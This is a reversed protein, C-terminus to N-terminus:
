RKGGVTITKTLVGLHDDYGFVNVTLLHKGPTLRTTDWLFTFPSVGDEEEFLPILDEYVAVEFKNDLMRGEDEANLTIRVPVIDSVCVSGDTTTQAPDLCEMMVKVERCQARHHRAHLYGAACVLPHFERDVPTFDRAEGGNQVIVTNDPLDFISMLVQLKPHDKLKILGSDDLGDWVYRQEGAEMPVWDLATRLHPLSSLGMRLRVCGARPMTWKLEGSPQDYSFRYPKIEEGGTLTSPDFVADEGRSRAHIVYRYIGAPVPQGEDSLGEWLARCVGFPQASVTLRRVRVGEDNVLDVWASAAMDISFHLLVQDRGAVSITKPEVGVAYITAHQAPGSAGSRSIMAADRKGAARDPL